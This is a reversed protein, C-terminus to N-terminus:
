LASHALRTQEAVGYLGRKPVGASLSCFSPVWSLVQSEFWPGGPGGDLITVVIISGSCVIHLRSYLIIHAITLGSYLDVKFDNM